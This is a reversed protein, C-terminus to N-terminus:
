VQQLSVSFSKESFIGKQNQAMSYFYQLINSFVTNTASNLKRSQEKHCIGSQGNLFDIQGINDSRRRCCILTRELFLLFHFFSLLLLKSLNCERDKVM